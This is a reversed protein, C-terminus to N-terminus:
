QWWQVLRRIPLHQAFVKLLAEDNSKRDRITGTVFGITRIVPKLYEVLVVRKFVRNDPVSLTVALQRGVVNTTVVGLVYPTALVLLIGLGPFTFGLIQEMMPPFRRDITTYLIKVSFFCLALPVIALLGRFIYTRIHRFFSKM